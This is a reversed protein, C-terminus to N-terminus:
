LKTLKLKNTCSTHIGDLSKCKMTGTGAAGQFTGTGGTVTLVGVYDTESFNSTGFTGQQPILHYKGHITGTPFYLQYQALNDGSAPVKFTDAQVGSGFTKGCKATGYEAGQQVVPTVETQGPAAVIGVSTKCVVKTLPSTSAAVAAVAGFALSSASLAAGVVCIRRRM